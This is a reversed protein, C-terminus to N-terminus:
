VELRQQKKIKKCYEVADRINEFTEVRPHTKMYRVLMLDESIRGVSRKLERATDELRWSEDDKLQSAHYIAVQKVRKVWNKERVEDTSHSERNVLKVVGISLSRNLM